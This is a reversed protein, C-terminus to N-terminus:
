SGVWATTMKSTPTLDHKGRREGEGFEEEFKEALSRTVKPTSTRAEPEEIMFFNVLWTCECFYLVILHQIIM